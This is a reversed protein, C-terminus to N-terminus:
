ALPGPILLAIPARHSLGGPPHACRPRDQELQAPLAASTVRMSREHVASRGPSRHVRRLRDRICM